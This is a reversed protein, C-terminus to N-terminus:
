LWYKGDKCNLFGKKILNPVTKGFVGYRGKGMDIFLENFLSKIMEESVCLKKDFEFGATSILERIGNYADEQRGILACLGDGEKLILSTSQTGDQNVLGIDVIHAKMTIPSFNDGDKMKICSLETIKSDQERKLSFEFDNNTKFVISGRMGRLVDKGYHHVLISSVGNHRCTKTRLNLVRAVDKAANEDSISVLSSFTDFIVLVPNIRKIESSLVRMQADDDICFFDTLFLFNDGMTGEVIELAKVRRGFSERGEGSIYLVKGKKYVINNFFDNGTCISHAIKLVVFTKYSMSDGAIMGHSDTELIKNILFVPARANKALAGGTVWTLSSKTLSDHDLQTVQKNWNIAMKFDDDCELIKYCSFADHSHGNALKDIGNSFVKGDDYLIIPAGSNAVSEPRFFRNSGSSRYGNRELIERATFRDNFEKIADNKYETKDKVPSQPRQNIGFFSDIVPTWNNWHLAMDLFLDPIVPINEPDGIIEYAGGDPHNGIIVDQNPGGRIEFISELNGNIKLSYKKVSSISVGDPLSFILKGRNSKPSKIQFRDPANLFTDIDLEAIDLFLKKCTDLNDFDLAITRSESHLLGYNFNVGTKLDCPNFSYGDPNDNSKIRNWGNFRPGKSPNGNSLPQIAVLILGAKYLSSIKPEISSNM